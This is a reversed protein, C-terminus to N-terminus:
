SNEPFHRPCEFRSLSDGSVGVAPGRFDIVPAALFHQEFVHFSNPISSLRFVVVGSPRIPYIRLTKLPLM